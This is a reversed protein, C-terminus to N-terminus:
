GCSQEADSHPSAIWIQVPEDAHLVSAPLEPTAPAQALVIAFVFLGVLMGCRMPTETATVAHSHQVADM